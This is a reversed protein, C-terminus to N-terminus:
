REKKYLDDFCYCGSSNNNCLLCQKSYINSYCIINDAVKHFKLHKMVFDLNIKNDRIRWCECYIPIHDKPLLEECKKLIEVILGKKRYEPATCTWTVEYGQYNSYEPEVIGSIAIIEKTTPINATFHTHLEAVVYKDINDLANKKIPYRGFCKVILNKIEEKDTETAQRIQIEM